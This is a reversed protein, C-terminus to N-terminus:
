AVTAVFVRRAAEVALAHVFLDFGLPNALQLGLQRPELLTRVRVRGKEVSRGHKQRRNVDRSGATGGGAGMAAAAAGGRRGADSDPESLSSEAESESYNTEEKGGRGGNRRGM